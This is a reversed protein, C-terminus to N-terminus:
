KTETHKKKKLIMSAFFSLGIGVVIGCILVGNIFYPSTPIKTFFNNPKKLLPNNNQTDLNIGLTLVDNPGSINIISEGVKKNDQEVIADYIGEKINSLKAIGSNDSVAQSIAKKNVSILKVQANTVPKNESSIKLNVTYFGKKDNTTEEGLVSSDNSTDTIAYIGGHKSSLIETADGFRKVSAKILMLEAPGKKIPILTMSYATCKQSYNSLIIGEFSPNKQTPTTLFSFHCDGLELEQVKLSSPVTITAAAANFKEGHGDIKLKVIFPKGFSGKQPSFGMTTTAAFSPRTIFSLLILSLIFILSKKKM